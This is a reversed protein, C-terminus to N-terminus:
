AVLHGLIARADEISQIGFRTIPKTRFEDYGKLNSNAGDRGKRAPDPYKNTWASGKWVKKTVAVSPPPSTPAYMSVVWLNVRDEHDLEVGLARRRGRTTYVSLHVMKSTATKSPVQDCHASLQARVFAKLDSITDTM